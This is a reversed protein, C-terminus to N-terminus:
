RSFESQNKASIETKRIKFRKYYDAIQVCKKAGFVALSRKVSCKCYCNTKSYIVVIAPLKVDSM